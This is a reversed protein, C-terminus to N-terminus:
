GRRSGGKELVRDDAVADGAGDVQRDDAKQEPWFLSAVLLLLLAGFIVNRVLSRDGGYNQQYARIGAVALIWGLSIPVLKKWGLRMFRDYRMRPLSGRLWIFGFLLVMVKLVFWLLPWWGTDLATFPPFPRWGGLFLTTAVASVTVMNIYEALFFMAFKVSSYETHFGAVLESEAEPLDFPARNTEGVASIAYIGASVPLLIVFWLRQQEAVIDSTSLSGSHIFVAAISLGMAIEYSIMQASSRLSGLLAYTSGSSWGALVIGYVGLSSMALIFLVGVPLDTLQLPTRNGAISVSPGFPIVSFALFAPIMSLIPALLYVPRDANRPRVDEKLFLKIGDALAQLIGFPGARNPGLRQQMRAV